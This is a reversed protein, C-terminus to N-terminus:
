QRRGRRLRQAASRVAREARLRLALHHLLGFGPAGNPPAARFNIMYSGSGTDSGRAVSIYALPVNQMREGAENKCTRLAQAPSTQAQAATSGTLALLTLCAPVFVRRVSM